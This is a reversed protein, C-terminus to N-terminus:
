AGPHDEFFTGSSPRKPKPAAAGKPKRPNTQTTQGSSAVFVGALMAVFGLIGFFVIHSVAALVLVSVGALAILAGGIIRTSSAPKPKTVRNVFKADDAYLGRELEELVRKEHDSLAVRVEGIKAL